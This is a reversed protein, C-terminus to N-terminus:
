KIAKLSNEITEWQALLEKTFYIELTNKAAEQVLELNHKIHLSYLDDQCYSIRIRPIIEIIPYFHLKDQYSITIVESNFQKNIVLIDKNQNLFNNIKQLNNDM